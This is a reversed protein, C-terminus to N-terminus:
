LMQLYKVPGADANRLGSDWGQHAIFASQDYDAYREKLTMLRIAGVERVYFRSLDGFLVVKNGTALQSSMSDNIYIPWGLLREPDGAILSPQVLYSGNGDKLGRLVGLIDSHMMWGTRGKVRYGSDVSYLLDIMEDFVIATSSATTKGLTSATVLGWPQNGAGTGTTLLENAKRGIREGLLEGIVQGVDMAGDRLLKNSVRVIRSTIEYSSLIMDAFTVDQESNPQNEGILAGSNGTDDTEPLHLPEGSNSRVITVPSQLLGAFSLVARDIVDLFSSGVLYGGESGVGTSQANLLKWRDCGRQELNYPGGLAFEIQSASPNWGQAALASVSKDNLSAGSGYRLWADVGQSIQRNAPNGRLQIPPTDFSQSAFRPATRNNRNLTSMHEDYLQCSEDWDAVWRDCDRSSTSATPQEGALQKIRSALSRRKTHFETDM